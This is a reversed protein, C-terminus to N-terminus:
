VWTSSIPTHLPQNGVNGIVQGVTGFFSGLINSAVSKGVASGVAVGVGKSYHGLRVHGIEHGLVGAIEDESTLIDMLGQTVHVSFKSESKFKVWANPSQSKEYTIPIVKFGDAKAVKNWAKQVTTKSIKAESCSCLMIMFAVACFFKRM